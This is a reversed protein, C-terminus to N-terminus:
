RYFRLPLVRNMSQSVSASLASQNSGALVYPGKLGSVDTYVQIWSLLDPVRQIEDLIVPAPHAAFFDKPDQQAWERKEPHELDVYGFGDLSTKVLTTKGAQRPGLVTTVPYKRISEKLPGALLRPIM